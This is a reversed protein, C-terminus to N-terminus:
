AAEARLVFPPKGEIKRLDNIQSLREAPTGRLVLDPDVTEAWAMAEALSVGAEAARADRAARQGNSIAASPVWAGPRKLHIQHAWSALMNGAPIPRGPLANMEALIEHSPRGAPWDRQLVLLREPTRYGGKPGPKKKATPPVSAAPLVECLPVVKPSPGAAVAPSPGPAGHEPAAIRAGRGLGDQERGGLLLRLLEEVAPSLQVVHRVVIEM